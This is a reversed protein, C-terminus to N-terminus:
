LFANRKLYYEGTLVCGDKDPLVYDYNPGWFSVLSYRDLRNTNTRVRHVPAKFRNDSVRSLMEGQNLILAGPIHPVQAPTTSFVGSTLEVRLDCFLSPENNQSKRTSSVLPSNSHGKKKLYGCCALGGFMSGLGGVAIGRDRYWAELGTFVEM